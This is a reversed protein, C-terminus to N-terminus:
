PQGTHSSSTPMCSVFEATARRQAIGLDGDPARCSSLRRQISEDSARDAANSRCVRVTCCIEGNSAKAHCDRNPLDYFILVVLEPPSRSSADRLIGEVTHTSTGNIKAMVDIWYAQTPPHPSPPPPQPHNPRHHHHPLGVLWRLCAAHYQVVWPSRRRCRVSPTKRMEQLAAKTSGTATAISTDYEAQNAPNVYFKKGIFPNSDRSRAADVTALTTAAAAMLAPLLLKVM